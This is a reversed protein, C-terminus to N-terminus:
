PCFPLPVKNNLTYISANPNSVMEIRGNAVGEAAGATAVLMNLKHSNRHHHRSNNNSSNIIVQSVLFVTSVIALGCIFLILQGM